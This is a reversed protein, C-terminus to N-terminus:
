EQYSSGPRGQQSTRPQGPPPSRPSSRAEARQNQQRIQVLRAHIRRIEAQMNRLDQQNLHPSAAHGTNSGTWSRDFPRYVAANPPPVPSRPPSMDKRKHLSPHYVLNPDQNYLARPEIDLNAFRRSLSSQEGLVHRATALSFYFVLLSILFNMAEASKYFSPLLKYEITTNYSSSISEPSFCFIDLVYISGVTVQSLHM